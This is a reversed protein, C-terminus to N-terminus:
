KVKPDSRRYTFSRGSQLVTIVACHSPYTVEVRESLDPMDACSLMYLGQCETDGCPSLREAHLLGDSWRLVFWSGAGEGALWQADAPVHAPRLPAPLTRHRKM